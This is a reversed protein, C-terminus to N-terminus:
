FISPKGGAVGRADEMEAGGRQCRTRKESRVSTRGGEESQIKIQVYYNSIQFISLKSRDGKHPSFM